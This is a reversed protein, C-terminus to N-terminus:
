LPRCALLSHANGLRPCVISLEMGAARTIDQLEKFGYMKSTGNAVASFYPSTNIVCYASIAYPQLDWFTDLILIRGGPALACSATRLIHIIQEASFCVLFQSMWVVDQDAPLNPLSGDIWNCPVYSVRHALGQRAINQRAMAIQGELDAISFQVDAAYQLCATAWKGTNGGIDLVSRVPRDFVLPLAQEFAADSYFHDFELWSKRVPEPLHALAQYVTDWQGFEKLGAPKGTLLSEELSFLAKYCVDNVFNINVCAMEDRLFHYGVDGVQYRPVEGEIRDCVGAALASELLVSCAYASLGSLEAAEKLTTGKEGRDSIVRLLGTRMLTVVVQFVVPGFAIKQAEFSAERASLKRRTSFPQM